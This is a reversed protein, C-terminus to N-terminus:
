ESADATIADPDIGLERLKAALMAAKQREQEAKQREQEARQREQGARQCEQETRAQELLKAEAGTALLDGNRDVWRLWVDGFNEYVGAWTTLGLDVEVLWRDATEVFRTAQRAFIRLPENSIERFPDYVVYYSVGMRAYDLLKDGLENGKRNSVVEIIVEPPKGYLWFFYCRHEKLMPNDPIKVDLSLLFDPVLPPTFNTTYIAVNGMAVFTRDKGPGAWSTYLTERLLAMQRESFINDVPEDDETILHSVDPAPIVFEDDDIPALTKTETM